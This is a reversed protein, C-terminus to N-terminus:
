KTDVTDGYEQPTSTQHLRPAYGSTRHKGHWQLQAKTKIALESYWCKVVWVSWNSAVQIDALVIHLLQGNAFLVQVDGNSPDQMLENMCEYSASVSMDGAQWLLLLGQLVFYSSVYVTHVYQINIHLSWFLEMKSTHQCVLDHTM